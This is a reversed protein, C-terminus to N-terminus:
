IASVSGHWLRHAYQFSTFDNIFNAYTQM